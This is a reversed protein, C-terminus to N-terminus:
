VNSWKAGNLRVLLNQIEQHLVLKANEAESVSDVFAIAAVRGAFQKLAPNTQLQQRKHEMKARPCHTM